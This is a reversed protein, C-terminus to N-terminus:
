TRSPTPDWSLLHHLVAAEALMEASDRMPDFNSAVRAGRVFARWWYGGGDAPEIEIRWESRRSELFAQNEAVREEATSM